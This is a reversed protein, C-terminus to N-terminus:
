SAACCGGGGVSVVISDPPPASRAMEDIITAHGEWLLPDDFPHIFADHPGLMSLALANADQWSAGHVVVEAQEAAILNKARESTTQPVVVSVPLGLARGAYAVALGANGGSSSIFRRAGNPAYAQCAHGVGRIKFSGAPQVAELKLWVPLGANQSLSRSELFPTELHLQM